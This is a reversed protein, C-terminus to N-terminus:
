PVLRKLEETWHQVVILQPPPPATEGQPRVERILLFRRGDPSVDYMRGTQPSSYNGKVVAVPTGASFVAGPTVPAAMIVGPPIFYFLERGNRSWLPRTGGNTSVQWRGESVNPFPRVYIEDKGSENSQYAIWRGDPSVAPNAETYTANLLPKPEALNQLDVMLIDYPPTGSNNVLLYRGDPSFAMPIFVGKAPTVRTPTGSGDASQVYVAEAGATATSVAIRTGDATWIPGRDLGPNFTLRTLTNRVLDWTWVDNQEDRIDLAIRRGDPSLRAYAYTRPPVKIEEERGQRDVWVLNRRANTATGAVYVLSGDAAMHASVAGSAKTVVGEIVGVPNGRIALRELDFPVARLTGNNGYVIHGSPSYLPSSGGRIIVQHQGTRLDLLAVQLSDSQGDATFITFLVAEGGPLAHPYRHAVEGKTPDTKTIPAPEGGPAVRMLGTNATGFVISDDPLWAAGNFGQNQSLKALPLPPGGTVAVKKLTIDTPDGFGIWQGDPSVFIHAPNSITPALPTPTLQDLPRLYLRAEGDGALYAIRRGDPSIVIDSGNGGFRVAAESHLVALRGVAPLAPRMLAWTAGGVSTALAVVGAAMLVVRALSRRPAAPPAATPVATETHFAGALALRVDGIDRFRLGADKKLCHHIVNRVAPPLGAPLAAWDPDSKIVSALVDTIDSGEFPRAGTLMEYLVCGFAWIDARKDVVRGRAQEPAMYAATGLITGVGTVAPTTLTPSLSVSGSRSTGGEVAKALGFDLVKVTGDPRVKVNAPKLDRHIVGSEHAAELASAIQRAIPLAEDLPIPGAAIRDALTPGEVMELALARVGDAQEFGYIAAINPHNLSALVQAERQLRALRDPDLAFVDPLVKLAVERQLRTDLARYVEGMGGAGIASIVEYPGV